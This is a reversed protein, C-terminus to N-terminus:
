APVAAYAADARRGNAYAAMAMAAKGAPVLEDVAV